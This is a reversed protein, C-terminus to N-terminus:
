RRRRRVVDNVTMAVSRAMEVRALAMEDAVLGAGEEVAIDGVTRDEASAPNGGLAEGIGLPLRRRDVARHHPAGRRGQDDCIM